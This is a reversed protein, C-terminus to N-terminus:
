AARTNALTVAEFPKLVPWVPKAHEPLRARDFNALVSCRLADAQRRLRGVYLSELFSGSAILAQHGPLLLHHYTVFEPSKAYFASRDNILHRAPVLVAERGFMYEVETGSMVLRQSPAVVIDRTLGFYPARLRVPQFSGLAPVVRSVVQLVPVEEGEDTLVMHGRRIDAARMEGASTLIPVQGTLAPMPGVPEIDDSLAVFVLDDSVDTQPMHQLAFILDDHPVPLPACVDVSIITDTATHELTLRGLDTATDWVYTIRMADLRGDADYALTAHRIDDGLADVLVIGGTPLSQISFRGFQAGTRDFALLTQPRFADSLYTEIVISGRPLM